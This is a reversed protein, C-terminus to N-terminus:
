MVTFDSPCQLLILIRLCLPTNELCLGAQNSLTYVHSGFTLDFGSTLKQILNAAVMSLLLSCCDNYLGTTM